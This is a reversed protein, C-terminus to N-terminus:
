IRFHRRLDPHFHNNLYDERQRQSRRAYKKLDESTSRRLRPRDEASRRRLGSPITPSVNRESLYRYRSRSTYWPPWSFRASVAPTLNNSGRNGIHSLNEIGQSRARGDSTGEQSLVLNEEDALYSRRDLKSNAFSSLLNNYSDTDLLSRRARTEANEPRNKPKENVLPTSMDIPHWAKNVHHWAKDVHNHLTDVHNSDKGVHNFYNDVHSLSKDVHSINLYGTNTGVKKNVAVGQEMCSERVLRDARKMAACARQVLAEDGHNDRTTGQNVDMDGNTYEWSDVTSCGNTNKSMLDNSNRSILNGYNGLFDNTTSDRSVDNRVDYTMVDDRIDDDGAIVDDGIVDHIKDRSSNTSEKLENIALRDNDRTYHHTSTLPEAIDMEVLSLNGEDFDMSVHSLESMKMPGDDDDRRDNVDSPKIPSVDPILQPDINVDSSELIDSNFVDDNSLTGDLKLGSMGHPSDKEPITTQAKIPSVAPSTGSDAGNSFPSSSDPHVKANRHHMPSSTLLNMPSPSKLISRTVRPRLPQRDRSMVPSKLGDPSFLKRRLSSVNLDRSNDEEEVYSYYGSDVIKSLDFSPPFTLSTQCCADTSNRRSSTNGPPSNHSADTISDEDGSIYTTSPPHPSFTVHKVHNEPTWPSPLITGHSFYENIAEQVKEEDDPNECTSSYEQNPFEDIDAPN